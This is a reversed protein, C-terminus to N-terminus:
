SVPNMQTLLLLHAKYAALQEGSSFKRADTHIMIRGSLEPYSLIIECGITKKLAMPPNKM